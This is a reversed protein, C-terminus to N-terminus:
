ARRDGSKRTIRDVQLAIADLAPKVPQGNSALESIGSELLAAVNPWARLQPIARAALLSKLGERHIGHHARNVSENEFSATRTVIMDSNKPLSKDTATAIELDPNAMWKLCEWAAEKKKSLKSVSIPMCNGLTVRRGKEFSPIQTFGVQEYTLRGNAGIMVPYGWWWGCMMASNGQAMSNLKDNEQFQVSGPNAVKYKLLLDLYSQTADVGAADNFKARGNADVLESGKGWLFNFWTFLNQAGNGKGYDMAIGHLGTKKEIAKSVEILEEWTQPPPLDLQRLLDKRYFLLQAQGRVPLGYTAGQFRTAQRFVDPYSDLDFQDRALWADIPELYNSLAPGWSDQYTVLDYTSSGAVAEITIKDLLQAYPVWSYHAKIGTMAELQSLHRAQGRYQAANPLMVTITTGAFPKGPRLKYAAPPNVLDSAAANSLPAFGTIAGLAAATGLFDRRNLTM